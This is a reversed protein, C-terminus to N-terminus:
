LYFFKQSSFFTKQGGHFTVIFTKMIESHCNEWKQRTFFFGRSFLFKKLTNGRITMSWRSLNFNFPTEKSSIGGKVREIGQLYSIVRNEEAEERCIDPKGDLFNRPRNSCQEQQYAQFLANFHPFHVLTKKILIALCNNLFTM